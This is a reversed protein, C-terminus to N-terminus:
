GNSKAAELAHRHLFLWAKMVAGLVQFPVGLLAGIGAGRLGQTVVMAVLMAASLVSIAAEWTRRGRYRCFSSILSFAPPGVLLTIYANAEPDPEFMM